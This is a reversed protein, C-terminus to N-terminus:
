RFVSLGDLITRFFHPAAKKSTIVNEPNLTNDPSQRMRNKIGRVEYDRLPRGLPFRYLQPYPFRTIQEPKVSTLNQGISSRGLSCVVTM